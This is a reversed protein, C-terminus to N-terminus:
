ALGDLVQSVVQRIQWPMVPKDLIGQVFARASWQRLMGAAGTVLIIATQPYLQRVRAALSLGDMGPMNYDTILVDFPGKEFLRLAHEGSSATAVQCGPLEELDRRLDSAVEAEDDVILLRARELM